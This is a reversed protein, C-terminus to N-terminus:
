GTSLCIYNYVSRNIDVGIAGSPDNSFRTINQAFVEGAFCALILAVQLALRKM